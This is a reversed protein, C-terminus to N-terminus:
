KSAIKNQIEFDGKLYSIFTHIGELHSDYACLYASVGKLPISFYPTSFSLAIVPIKVQPTLDNIFRVHSEKEFGIVIFDYKKKSITELLTKQLKSTMGDKLYQFEAQPFSAKFEKFFPYQSSLVLIKKNKDKILKFSDKQSILTLSKEAIKKRFDSSPKRLSSVQAEERKYKTLLIRTLSEHLRKLPIKKDQVAQYLGDFVTLQNKRQGAVMLIDNGALFADVAAKKIGEEDLIASMELDDSLVIGKFGLEKRLLGVLYKQSLTVPLDDGPLTIHATMLMDVGQDIAKKFPILDFKKFKEFSYPVRSLGKHSDGVSNGHGPFHKAAASLGAEQLGKIFANGMLAVEDPTRGFSRNGMVSLNAQANIDLVPALNLNFGISKMQYGLHFAAEYALNPDKTAGIAMASPIRFQKERIRIIDGGEQDTTIYIPYKQTSKLDTILKEVQKSNEINYSFLIFNGFPYNKLLKQSESSLKKGRVGVMMIHGIKEKLTMQNIINEVQSQSAFLFSFNLFLSFVFISIAKVM